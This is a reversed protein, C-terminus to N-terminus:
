RLRQKISGAHKMMWLFGVVIAGGALASIGVMGWDIGNDLTYQAVDQPNVPPVTVPTEGPQKPRYLTIGQFCGEVLKGNRFTFTHHEKVAVVTEGGYAVQWTTGYPHPKQVHELLDYAWETLRPPVPGVWLKYGDPPPANGPCSAM